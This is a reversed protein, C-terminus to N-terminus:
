RGARRSGWSTLQRLDLGHAERTLGSYGAPFGGLAVREPDAVALEIPVLAAAPATATM